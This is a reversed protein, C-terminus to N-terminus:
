KTAAKAIALMARAGPTLPEVATYHEELFGFEKCSSCSDLHRCAIWGSDRVGNAPLVEILEFVDNPYYKDRGVNTGRPWNNRRVGAGVERGAVVDAVRRRM